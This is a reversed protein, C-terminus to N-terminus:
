LAELLNSRFPVRVSKEEQLKVIEEYSLAKAETVLKIAESMTVQKM